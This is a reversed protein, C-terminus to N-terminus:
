FHLIKRHNLTFGISFLQLTKRAFHIIKETGQTLGLDADSLVPFNHNEWSCFLYSRLLGETFIYIQSHFSSVSKQLFQKLRREKANTFWYFGTWNM